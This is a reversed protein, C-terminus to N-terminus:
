PGNMTMHPPPPLTPPEFTTSSNLNGYMEREGVGSSDVMGYEFGRRGFTRRRYEVFNFGNFRKKYVYYGLGTLASFVFINRFWNSRSKKETNSPVYPKSDKEDSPIYPEKEDSPIYPKPTQKNEPDKPTPKPVPAPKPAPNPAQTKPSPPETPPTGDSGKLCKKSFKKYFNWAEEPIEDECDLRRFAPFPGANGCDNKVFDCQDKSSFESTQYEGELNDKCPKWFENWSDCDIADLSKCADISEYLITKFNMFSPCLPCADSAKKSCDCFTGAHDYLNTALASIAEKPAEKNSDVTPNTKANKLIQMCSLATRGGHNEEDRYSHACTEFSDLQGFNNQDFDTILLSVSDLNTCSSYDMIASTGDMTEKPTCQKVTNEDDSKPSPPTVQGPGSKNTCFESEGKDTCSCMTCDIIAMFTDIGYCYDPADEAFCKQCEENRDCAGLQVVCKKEICSYLEKFDKYEPDDTPDVNPKLSDCTFPCVEGGVSFDCDGPAGGGAISPSGESLPRVEWTVEVGWTGGGTQANYCQPSKSLCIYETGQFGDVLGGQFAVDASKGEAQITLTTTDWGDGFSDYMVLRYKIEDDDCKIDNPDPNNKGGNTNSSCKTTLDSDCSDSSPDKCAYGDHGCEVYSSTITIECTDECCDGDDYGCVATNYCGDMNDHCVGDGIWGKHMGEWECEALSACDFTDDDDGRGKGGTYDDDNDDWAVCADFTECFTNTAVEDGDLSSCHGGDTLYQVVDSCTTDSTVGTWDIEELALTEFCNICKTNPLCSMFKADCAEDQELHRSTFTPSSLRREPYGQMTTLLRYIDDRKALVSKAVAPSTFFGSGETVSATATSSLVFILFKPRLLFHM